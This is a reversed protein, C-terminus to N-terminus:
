EACVLDSADRGHLDAHPVRVEGHETCCVSRRGSPAATMTSAVCMASPQAAGSRTTLATVPQKLSGSELQEATRAPKAILEHNDKSLM